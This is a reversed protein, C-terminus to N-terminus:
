SMDTSLVVIKEPNEIVPLENSVGEGVLQWPQGEPTYLRAWRGPRGGGEVTPAVHTYGLALDQTPDDTSGQGVRYGSRNNNGVALIKGASMFPIIVTQGPNSLDMIEGEEDYAILTVRDRQDPSPVTNGGITAFKVIEMGNVSQNVVNVANVSNNVIEDITDSHAIFARVNYRLLQKATRIDTWFKSTSGGYADNGTRNTLLNGSPIGYDVLLNKQNFTWDIEGNILAQGRLWESRDLQAQIIVKQLFNLAERQLMETTNGGSLQLQMLLQQLERLVAETLRATIALKASQELFASTEVMGGPPYPSDMGVMGAMTARVTMTGSEVHYTPKLMEPLLTAFLYNTAPRAANAIRFIADPGLALLIAVFNLDM